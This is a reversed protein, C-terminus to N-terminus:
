FEGLLRFCKGKAKISTPRTRKAFYTFIKQLFQNDKITTTIYTSHVGKSELALNWQIFIEKYQELTAFYFLLDLAPTKNHLDFCQAQVMVLCSFLQSSSANQLSDDCVIEFVRDYDNEFVRDKENTHYFITAMVEKINIEKPMLSCVRGTKNMVKSDEATFQYTCYLNMDEETLQKTPFFLVNEANVIYVLEEEHICYCKRYAVMVLRRNRRYLKISVKGYDVSYPYTIEISYHSIIIKITTNNIQETTIPHHELASMAQDSLSLITEFNAANGSHQLVTGLVTQHLLINHQHSTIQNMMYCNDTVGCCSLKEHLLIIPTNTSGNSLIVAVNYDEKLYAELVFFTLKLEKSGEHGVIDSVVHVNDMCKYSLVKWAKIVQADDAPLKHILISFRTEDVTSKYNGIKVSCQRIFDLASNKTCLPCSTESVTLHLHLGHLLAHTQISMLFAKLLKKSLLMACLHAWFNYSSHDYDESDLQAVFSKLVLMVTETCLLSETLASRSGSEMCCTMMHEISNSLTTFVASLDKPTIQKLSTATVHKWVLSKMMVGYFYEFSGNFPVPKISLRSNYENDHGLCRIGCILPLLKCDFGFVAKLYGLSTTSILYHRFTDTFLLGAQKLVSMAILVLSPPAIYDILNSAYIADFISPFACSFNLSKKFLTQCFQLADSCDFTFWIRHPKSLVEASSRIWLSFQQLCNALLPHHAFMNDPVLLSYGSFGLRKLEKPSFQFTHFFCRYPYLNDHLSYSGDANEFFTNNAMSASQKTPVKSRLVEEAFVFGNRCYFDLDEEMYKRDTNPINNYLYHGFLRILHVENNHLMTAFSYEMFKSRATRIDEVPRGDSYWLQWVCRIKSLSTPTTFQVLTRLPNDVQESWLKISKSWQLLQSLADMLVQKHQPLLELCYWISWFSAVWNMVGDKDRPMKTCLYLFIINRALVAASNDNLVFHVGKFNRSHRQDFNNWLTYFCSRIDGCGLSLIAPESVDTTVSQLFDEPPTNGYAYYYFSLKQDVFRTAPFYSTDSMDGLIFLM